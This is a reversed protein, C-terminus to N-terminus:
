PPIPLGIAQSPIVGNAVSVSVELYFISWKIGKIIKKRIKITCCCFKESFMENDNKEFNRNYPFEFVEQSIKYNKREM